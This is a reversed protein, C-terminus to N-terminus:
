QDLLPSVGASPYSISEVFIIIGAVQNHIDFWPRLEGRVNISFGDSDIVNELALNVIEGNMARQNLIKVEESLNPFVEYHSRGIINKERLNFDDVFKRSAIVYRMERDLVAVPNPVRQLVFQLERERNQLFKVTQESHIENKIQKFTSWLIVTSLITITTILIFIVELNAFASQPTYYYISLSVVIMISNIWYLMRRGLKASTRRNSFISMLGQKPNLYFVAITLLALAFLTPRAQASYPFVQNFETQRFVHGLIGVMALFMSILCLGDTVNISFKMKKFRNSILALSLAIFSLATTFAMRGPANFENVYRDTVLFEDVGLNVKLLHELLTLGSLILIIALSIMSALKLKENTRFKNEVSLSFCFLLVCLIANIKMTSGYSSYSLLLPYDFIQGLGALVVIALCIGICVIVRTQYSIGTVEAAKKESKKKKILYLKESIGYQEELAKTALIRSKIADAEEFIRDQMRTFKKLALQIATALAVQDYPKPLFGYVDLDALKALTDDTVTGTILICPINLRNLEKIVDLGTKEGALVLDVLVIDVSTTKLSAMTTEYSIAVGVAQYGLQNLMAETLIITTPEDEVIFVRVSAKEAKSGPKSAKKDKEPISKNLEVFTRCLLAPAVTEYVFNLCNAENINLERWM